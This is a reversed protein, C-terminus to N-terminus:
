QSKPPCLAFCTFNGPRFEAVLENIDNVSINKIAHVDDSVSRYQGLYVWDFGLNVFRGM